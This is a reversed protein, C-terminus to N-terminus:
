LTCTIGGALENLPGTGWTPPSLSLFRNNRPGELGWSGGHHSSGTFICTKAWCPGLVRAWLMGVHGGSFGARQQGPGTHPPPPSPQRSHLARLPQTCGGSTHNECRPSGQVGLVQLICKRPEWVAPRRRTHTRRHAGGGVAGLVCM